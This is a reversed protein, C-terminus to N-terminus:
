LHELTNYEKEIEAMEKALTKWNDLVNGRCRPCDDKKIGGPDVYIFYAEWLKWFEENPQNAKAKPLWEFLIKQRFEHSISKIIQTTTM